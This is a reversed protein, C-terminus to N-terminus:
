SSSALSGQHDEQRGLALRGGALHRHQGLRGDLLHQLAEDAALLRDRVRVGGQAEGETLVLCHLGVTPAVTPGRGRHDGVVEVQQAVGGTQVLEQTDEGM